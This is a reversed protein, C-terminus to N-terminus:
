ILGSLNQAQGGDNLIDVPVEWNVSYRFDPPNPLHFHVMTFSGSM